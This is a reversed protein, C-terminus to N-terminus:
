SKKLSADVVWFKILLSKPPCTQLSVEELEGVGSLNNCWFDTNWQGRYGYLFNFDYAACCAYVM